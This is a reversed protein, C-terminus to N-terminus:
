RSLFPVASPTFIKNGLSASGPNYREVSRTFRIEEIRANTTAGPITAKSGVIIDTIVRLSSDVTRVYYGNVYLQGGGAGSKKVMAIHARSNTTLGLSAYDISNATPTTFTWTAGFGAFSNASHVMSGANELRMFEDYGEAYGGAVYTASIVRTFYEFTWSEGSDAFNAASYSLYNAAGSFCEIARGAFFLPDDSNTIAGVVTPTRHFSSSDTFVSGADNGHLLLMVSGFYPDGPIVAQSAGRIQVKGSVRWAGYYVHRFSLSGQFQAVIPGARLAPWNANFWAGGELLDTKWWSHFIALQTANMFIEFDITGAYDRERTAYSDPGLTGTRSVRDKPTQVSRSPLPLGAPYDVAM